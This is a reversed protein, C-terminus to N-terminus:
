CMEVGKHQATNEGTSSDEKKREKKGRRTLLRLRPEGYIGHSSVTLSTKPNDLHQQYFFLCIVGIVKAEQFQNLRKPSARKDAASGTLLQGAVIKSIPSYIFPKRNRDREGM